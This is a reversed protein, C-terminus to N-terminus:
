LVFLRYRLDGTVHSAFRVIDVAVTEVGARAWGPRRVSPRADELYPLVGLLAPRWRLGVVASALGLAFLADRRRFAWPRWFGARRFEPYIGALRIIQRENWGQRLQWRVGRPVCPHVVVADAAFDRAWGNALVAWGLATDEGWWGIDEDFGGAAELAARRYFINCAPFHAEPGTIDHILSWAPLAARDTGDPPKTRGQVVGLRPDAGLAVLGAELWGPVPEVDDDIFAILPAATSRWGRNRALAPGRNVDTALARIRLPSAAALEALTAATDDGSANDVLVVEYRAGDLNQAELAAVLCRLQAARRYTSCVVAIEPTPTSATDAPGDM